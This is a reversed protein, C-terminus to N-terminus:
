ELRQLVSRHHRPNHLRRKPSKLEWVLKDDVQRLILDAGHRINFNEDITPLSPYATTRESNKSSTSTFSVTSSKISEASVGLHLEFPEFNVFSSTHSVLSDLAYNTPFAHLSLMM